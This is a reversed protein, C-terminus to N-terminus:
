TLNMTEVQILFTLNKMLVTTMKTMWNLEEDYCDKDPDALNLEENSCDEDPDALYLEEYSCDDEPDTL